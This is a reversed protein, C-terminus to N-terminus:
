EKCKHEEVHAQFERMASRQYRRAELLIAQTNPSKIAIHNERAKCVAAITELVAQGLARRIECVDDPLM